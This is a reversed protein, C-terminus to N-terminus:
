QKQQIRKKHHTLELINQITKTGKKCIKYENYGIEIILNQDTLNQLKQNLKEPIINIEKNFQSQRLARPYNYYLTKLIQVEHSDLKEKM